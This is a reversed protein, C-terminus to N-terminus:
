AAPAVRARVTFRGRADRERSWPTKTTVELEPTQAPCRRPEEIGGPQGSAGAAGVGGGGRGLADGDGGASVGAPAAGEVLSTRPREVRPDARSGAAEEASGRGWRAVLAAVEAEAAQATGSLPAAKQQMRELTYALAAATRLLKGSAGCMRSMELATLEPAYARASIAYATERLILIEAAIRAQMADAPMLASIEQV